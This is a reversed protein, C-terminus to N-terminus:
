IKEIEERLGKRLIEEENLIYRVIEIKEEAKLNKTPNQIILLEPKSIANYIVYLYYDDEFRQAKFWENPTLVINGEEARAKVEIYRIRGEKDTSRIDFGLNEKSVDEPERGWKREYEMAIEMGIREVEEDSVMLDENKKSKVKIIGLFKPMTISLSQEKEILEELEKKAREYEKKREEKRRIALDVDEGKDKRINLEIIDSDLENIIFRLSKLGYKTKIEAQRKREELVEKKYEELASIAFIKIEDKIRDIDLDMDEEQPNNEEILDWIVSPSIPTIQNDKKYFSFIKKGAINGTGDKIEGEYFLIYGDLKGEPDYFVAGNYVSDKLSDEVWKLVGEFLPHGFSVFELSSNRMSLEKDFTIKPYRPLIIGYQRKFSEEQSIRRLDSPVLDISLIKKDKDIFRVKGGIKEFSKIFFNQTYEPILRNERAKYAMEGIRTYDIHKTALTEGMNEKISKIYDEDIKIDIERLIDEIGRANVAADILAQMFKKSDIIEGIVDFVKDSGLAEKIEELKRLLKLMVSGERTDSAVFNYIFVEKTQGYRHIRGIRQELRNPNWPIDYNIMLNSFQLNIGEGAAETAVLVQTENKFRKEEEVRTDLNMGGHITNVKYGWSKVKKELHEMTDRAETFVIVKIDKSDKINETLKYLLEKLKKLKIEEEKDIIIKAKDILKEITYIENKLDEINEATTLTEWKLEEKWREEEDMDEFEDIDISNERREIKLNFNNIIEELKNKRRELSKLLAYTSSAFRRQLLVLAFGINRKKDEPRLLSYQNQIYHSLENYLVKEEPSEKGINIEVTKVNRPLFLPKGDFDKLDEKMRRIFLPNDKNRISEEILEDNAFFGPSLLDLFLRYNEKDGKHPTATLFLFHNSIKSLVEGLKYRESKTIKEGYKYASMKHAEDVVILDFYTASISPLIEERKAFDMSTIIQNEKEWVNVGYEANFTARDVLIFNEEFKEKLERQWQYKLHGPAVILIRKALGRLKLEKIVLGAMITKGAGPDDAILYRIKPFKLVHGYVADIQHPLPDIKSINVALIPDYLSAYKYRIAELSLFVKWAEEKFLKDKTKIEIKTLDELPILHDIHGSSKILSGVIRLYNGLNEVLDVKIPEPWFPGSIIVGPQLFEKLEKKEFM